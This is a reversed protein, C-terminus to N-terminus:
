KTHEQAQRYMRKLDETIESDVTIEEEEGTLDYALAYVEQGHGEEELRFLFAWNAWEAYQRNPASRHADFILRADELTPATMILRAATRGAGPSSLWAEHGTIASPNVSADANAAGGAAEAM